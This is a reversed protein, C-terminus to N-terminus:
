QVSCCVVCRSCFYVQLYCSIKRRVKQVLSVATMADRSKRAILLAELLNHLSGVHCNSPIVSQNGIINQLYHDLDNAIKEFVAGLEDTGYTQLLITYFQMHVQLCKYLMSLLYCSCEIYKCASFTRHKSITHSVHELGSLLFIFVFYM